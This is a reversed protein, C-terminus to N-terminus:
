VKDEIAKAVPIYSKRYDYHDIIYQRYEEPNYPEEYMRRLDDFTNWVYKDPFQYEIGPYRHLLPKCGTAMAELVNMPHGEVMSCSLLSGKDKLFERVFSHSNQHGHTFFQTKMYPMIYNIYTYMRRSNVAGIHELTMAPNVKQLEHVSQVALMVGKKFNLNCIWAVRNHADKPKKALTWEDVDIGNKFYIPVINPHASELYTFHAENLAFVGAAKELPVTDVGGVRTDKFFEFSRVIVFVPVGTDANLINRAWMSGWMCLVADFKKVEQVALPVDKESYGIIWKVNHGRSELFKTWYPIWTNEFLSTCLIKM